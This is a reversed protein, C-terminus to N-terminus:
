SEEYHADFTRSEFEEKLIETILEDMIDEKECDKLMTWITAYSNQKLADLYLGNYEVIEQAKEIAEDQTYIQNDRTYLTIMKKNGKKVTGIIYVMKRFFDIKYKLRYGDLKYTM